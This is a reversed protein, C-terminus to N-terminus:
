PDSWIALLFAGACFTIFIALITLWAWAHSVIYLLSGIALAGLICTLLFRVLM